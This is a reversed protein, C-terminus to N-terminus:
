MTHTDLNECKQLQESRGQRFTTRDAQSLFRACTRESISQHGFDDRRPPAPDGKRRLRPVIQLIKPGAATVVVGRMAAASPGSPAFELCPRSPETRGGCVIDGVVTRARGPCRVIGILPVGERLPGAAEARPRRGGDQLFGPGGDHRLGFVRSLAM